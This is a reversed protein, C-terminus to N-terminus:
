DLTTGAAKIIGEWKPLEKRIQNQVEQPTGGLPEQSRSRLEKSVNDSRLAANMAANLRAIVEPPTGAPAVLASWASQEYDPYGQEAVTPVDPNSAARTRTTVALARLRGDKLNGILPPLNEMMSDVHGGLLDSLQAATAKYPIQRVAAGTQAIFLKVGVESTTGPDASTMTLREPQARSADIFGKLDRYPSSANVVIVNPTEAVLGIPAIDRDLDYLQQKFLFRHLVLTGVHAYGITYGDAPARAVAQTGIRGGAGVRNEVVVPQGLQRSMEQGVLRATIDANGGAAAPVILTIAREPYAALAAPAALSLLLAAFCATRKM